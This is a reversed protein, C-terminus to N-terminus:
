IEIGKCINEGLCGQEGSVNRAGWTAQISLSIGDWRVDNSEVEIEITEGGIFNGIDDISKRGHSQRGRTERGGGRGGRGGRGGVDGRRRDGVFVNHQVFGETLGNLM